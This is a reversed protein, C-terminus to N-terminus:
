LLYSILVREKNKTKKWLNVACCVVAKIVNACAAFAPNKQLNSDFLLPTESARWSDKDTVGWVVFAECKPNAKCNTAVTGFVNAQQQQCKPCLSGRHDLSCRLPIADQHLSAQIFSEGFPSAFYRLGCHCDVHHLLCQREM